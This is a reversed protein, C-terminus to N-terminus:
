QKTKNNLVTKVWVLSDHSLNESIMSSPYLSSYDTVAIPTDLYIGKKSNPFLQLIKKDELFFNISGKFNSDSIKSSLLTSKNRCLM